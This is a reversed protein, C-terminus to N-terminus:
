LNLDGVSLHAHPGWMDALEHAGLGVEASMDRLFAM